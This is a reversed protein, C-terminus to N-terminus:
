NTQTRNSKIRNKNLKLLTLSHDPFLYTKTKPMIHIIAKNELMVLIVSSIEM